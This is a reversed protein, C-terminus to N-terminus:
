RDTGSKNEKPCIVARRGAVRVEHTRGDAELCVTWGRTVVQAYTRDKEPCGLSADPWTTEKASELAIATEPMKLTEALHAKAREIAQARAKAPDPPTGGIPPNQASAALAAAAFLVVLFQGTPM